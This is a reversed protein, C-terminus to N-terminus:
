KIKNLHVVNSINEVDLLVIGKSRRHKVKICFQMPLSTELCPSKASTSTPSLLVSWRVSALTSPWPPTPRTKQWTWTLRGACSSRSWWRRSWYSYLFCLFVAHGTLYPLFVSLCVFVCLCECVCPFSSLLEGQVQPCSVQEQDGPLKRQEDGRQLAWQPHCVECRKACGALSCLWTQSVGLDLTVVNNDQSPWIM